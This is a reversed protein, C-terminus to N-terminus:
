PAANASSSSAKRFDIGHFACSFYLSIEDIPISYKRFARQSLFTEAWSIGTSVINIENLDTVPLEGDHVIAHRTAFLQEVDAIGWRASSLKSVDVNRYALAKYMASEKPAYVFEEESFLSLRNGLHHLLMKRPNSDVIEKVIKDHLRGIVGEYSGLDSIEAATLTKESGLSKIIRPEKDLICRVLQSVFVEFETCFSVLAFSLIIPKAVATPQFYLALSSRVTEEARDEQGDAAALSRVKEILAERAVVMDADENLFQERHECADITYQTAALLQRLRALHKELELSRTSEM